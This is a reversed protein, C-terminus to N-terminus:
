KPPCVMRWVAAVAAAPVLTLVAIAWQWLVQVRIRCEGCGKERMEHCDELIDGVIAARYKRPIWWGLAVIWREAKKKPTLIELLYLRTKDNIIYRYLDLMDRVFSITFIAIGLGGTLMSMFFWMPRLVETEPFLIAPLVHLAWALLLCTCTLIVPIM